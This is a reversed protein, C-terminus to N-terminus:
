LPNKEKELDYREQEIKAIKADFYPLLAPHKAILFRRFRPAIRVLEQKALAQVKMEESLVVRGMDILIPKQEVFGFNSRLNPDRNRYGKECLSLTLQLTAEIAEEAAAKQGEKMLTDITMSLMVAKRQLVFPIPDLSFTHTKGEADTLSLPPFLQATPNLHISLLGTEEPIEDYALKFATYVAERRKEKKAKEKEKFFPIPLRELWEPAAFKKQKFFKIV